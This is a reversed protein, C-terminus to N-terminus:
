RNLQTQTIHGMARLSLLRINTNVQVDFISTCGLYFAYCAFYNVSFFQIYPDDHGHPQLAVIFCCILVGTM